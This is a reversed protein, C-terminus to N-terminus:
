NVGISFFGAGQLWSGIKYFKIQMNDKALHRQAPLTAAGPSWLNAKNMYIQKRFGIVKFTTFGYYLSQLLIKSYLPESQIVGVRFQM